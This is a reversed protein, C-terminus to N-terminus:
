KPELGQCNGEGVEWGVWGSEVSLAAPSSPSRHQKQGTQASQMGRALANTSMVHPSAWGDLGGATKKAPRAASSNVHVGDDLRLGALASKRSKPRKAAAAAALQASSPVVVSGALRLLRSRCCSM